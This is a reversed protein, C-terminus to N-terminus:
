EFSMGSIRDTLEQAHSAIDDAHGRMSASASSMVDPHLLIGTGTGGGSSQGLAAATEQYVLGSVAKAVSDELPEIAAQVVQGVLHDELDQVLKKMVTRATAELAPLGAEALGFTFIAAAQDAVFAAALVGLEVLAGAKLGVVADAALDLAQAVAQCASQLESMHTNSMKAWTAIMAEYSAGQYGESLNKLTVTANQHSDDMKGAFDRIHSALERIKDENVEPWTVGIFSLLKVVPDPLEIAM